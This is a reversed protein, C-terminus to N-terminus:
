AGRGRGAARMRMGQERRWHEGVQVRLSPRVSTADHMGQRMDAITKASQADGPGKGGGSTQPPYQGVSGM